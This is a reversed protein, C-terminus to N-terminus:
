GVLISAYSPSQQSRTALVDRVALRAGRCGSRGLGPLSSLNKGCTANAISRQHSSLYSRPQAFRIPAELGSSSSNNLFWGACEMLASASFAHSFAPHIDAVEDQEGAVYSFGQLGPADMYAGLVSASTLVEFFKQSRLSIAVRRLAGNAFDVVLSRYGSCM